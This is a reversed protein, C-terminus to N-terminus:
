DETDEDAEKLRELFVNIVKWVIDCEPAQYDDPVTEGCDVIM